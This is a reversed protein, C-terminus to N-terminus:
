PLPWAYLRLPLPFHRYTPPSLVVCSVLFSTGEEVVKAKEAEKAKRRGEDDSDYEHVNDYLPPLYKYRCCGCPLCWLHSPTHTKLVNQLAACM